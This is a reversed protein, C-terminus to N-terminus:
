ADGNGELISVVEEVETATGASRVDFGRDIRRMLGGLVRGPGVELWLTPALLAMTQVCEVWRVPSTLQEVLLERARNAETVPEASANAVVPFSPDAVRVGELALALGERADMMLPSHFAGSVNLPLARKAGAALAKERAEGVADVDGSIVIQGPANFNAPVVTGTQVSACVEAVVDDELGIIAAMTGPRVTGARGMLEGRRRVLRLADEFGLAGSALYASFEGLSHGAAISVRGRVEEPLCIWTAYSHLLIAPQANDTRTLEEEPGEWCVRSLDTGLIDDAAEFVEAAEVRHDALDRGMGVFQSGQGPLLLAIQGKTV